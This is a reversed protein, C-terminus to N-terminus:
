YPTANEDNDDWAAVGTMNPQHAVHPGDHDKERTCTLLRNRDVPMERTDHCWPVGFPKIDRVEDFEISM